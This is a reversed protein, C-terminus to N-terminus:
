ACPVISSIIDSPECQHGFVVPIIKIAKPIGGVGIGGSNLVFSKGINSGNIRITEGWVGGFYKLDESSSGEALLIIQKTERDDGTVQVILKELEVDGVNVSFELNNNVEYCTYENNLNVKEVIGFCANSKDININVISIVVGWVIAGVVIAMGILLITVIVGSVGKKDLFTRRGM